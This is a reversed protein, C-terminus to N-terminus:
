GILSLMSFRLCVRDAAGLHACGTLTLLTRRTLIMHPYAILSIPQDAM